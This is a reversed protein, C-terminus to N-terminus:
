TTVYTKVKAILDDVTEIDIADFVDFTFNFAAEVKQLLTVQALSDWEPIDGAGLEESYKDDPINLVSIVIAKIKEEVVDAVIEVM